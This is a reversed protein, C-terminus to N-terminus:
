RMQVMPAIMTETTLMGNTFGSAVTANGGIIMCIMIMVM